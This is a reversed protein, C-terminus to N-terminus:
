DTIKFLAGDTTGEVDPFYYQYAHAPILRYEGAQLPTLLYTLEYTGAPLSSAIWRIHDDYVTPAGFYWSGWGGAFPDRPDYQPGQTSPGSVVIQNTKLELNLVEAGAPIFDEVVVLYMPHPVTITLRVELSPNSSGLSVTDVPTCVQKRCDTGAPYYARAISIGRELAPASEVPRDVQLFARYYLRGNGSEHVLKLANPGDLSLASLPVSAEVPTLTSAGAAQGSLLPSDNLSASFAFNAQLDGTGKLAEALAQLIWASEFSSAWAGGASRHAVLYRVGDALLPSAPDFRALATIVVATTFNASAYNVQNGDGPDWYAGTSSRVASTALSSLITKTREDGPKQLDITMALMAKAWPSLQEWVSYLGSANNVSKGSIQLAYVEFALQDMTWSPTDRSPTFLVGNVFDQAKSLVDGDV